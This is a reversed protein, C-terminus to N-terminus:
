APGLVRRVATLLREETFPKHLLVADSADIGYPSLAADAYGSMLIVHMDPRSAALYRAVEVGNVLPIVVDTLLLDIRAAKAAVELAEAGDGAQLVAYGNEELTSLLLNRVLPDDEVLLVTETGHVDQVVTERAGEAPQDVPAGVAPLFVSFTSGNGPESTVHIFGRAAAVIGYVISLGLGTGKEKPKTTFFPEFIRQVIAADMGVGTDSVSLVVYATGHVGGAAEVEADAAGHCRITIIGAWPTADRANIVLNMLVQELRGPDVQVNACDQELDFVLSVDETAIRELMERLNRILARLSLIKPRAPDNRSFALLQKTLTAARQGAKLIEDVRKTMEVNGGSLRLLIKGQLMIGMLVNNFDHAIGGALWGVAEMKQAQVLQRESEHLAAESRKRETIDEKVAV